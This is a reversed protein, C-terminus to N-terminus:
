ISLSIVLTCNLAFNFSTHTSLRSCISHNKAFAARFILLPVDAYKEIDSMYIGFNGLHDENMSKSWGVEEWCHEWVYEPYVISTSHAILKAGAYCFCRWSLMEYSLRRLITSYPYYAYRDYCFSALFFVSPDRDNFGAGNQQQHVMNQTQQLLVCPITTSLSIGLDFYSLKRKM